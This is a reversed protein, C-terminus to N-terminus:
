LFLLIWGSGSLFGLLFIGISMLLYDKRRKVHESILSKLKIELTYTKYLRRLLNYESEALEKERKKLVEPHPIINM